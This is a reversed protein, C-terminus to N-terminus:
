EAVKTVSFTLETNEGFYIYGDADAADNADITYEQTNIPYIPNSGSPLIRAKADEIGPLYFEVIGNENTPLADYCANKDCVQVPINAVPNGDQDVVKVIHTPKAPETPATTPTTTTPQTAPKTTPDPKKATTPDNGQAGCAVLCLAMTLVLMVAILRKMNNM